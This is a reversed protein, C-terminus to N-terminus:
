ITLKSQERHDRDSPIKIQRDSVIFQKNVKKQLFVVRFLQM